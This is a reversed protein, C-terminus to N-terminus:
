TLDALENAGPNERNMRQFECETRAPQFESRCRNVSEFMLSHRKPSPYHVRRREGVVLDVLM